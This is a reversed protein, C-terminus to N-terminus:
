ELIVLADGAQVVSGQKIGNAISVVKRGINEEVAEVNVETKMAELVILVDEASQIVDGPRCTIKWM